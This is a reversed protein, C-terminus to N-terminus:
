YHNSTNFLCVSHLQEYLQTMQEVTMAGEDARVPTVPRLQILQASPAVIKPAIPTPMFSNTLITGHLSRKRGRREQREEPDETLLSNIEKKSINAGPDTRYEENPEESQQTSYDVDRSDDETTEEANDATFENLFQTYVDRESEAIIEQLDKQLATLEEMDFDSEGVNEEDDNEVVEGVEEVNQPVVFDTDDDDEDSFNNMYLALIDDTVVTPSDEDNNTDNSDENFDDEEAADEILSM